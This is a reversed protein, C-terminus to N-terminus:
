GSCLIMYWLIVYQSVILIEGNTGKFGIVWSGPVEDWEYWVDVAVASATEFGSVTQLGVLPIVLLAVTM